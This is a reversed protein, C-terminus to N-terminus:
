WCIEETCKMEQARALRRLLASKAFGRKELPVEAFRSKPGIAARRFSALGSKTQTAAEAELSDGSRRSACISYM